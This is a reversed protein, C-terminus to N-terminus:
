KIISKRVIMEAKNYFVYYSTEDCFNTANTQHFEIKNELLLKCLVIFDDIMSLNLPNYIKLRSTKDQGFHGGYFVFKDVDDYNNYLYEKFKKIESLYTSITTSTPVQMWVGCGSGFQDGTFILKSTEDIFIVGGLTHGKNFLVRIKFTIFDFLQEDKFYNAKSAIEKEKILSVDDKHIYFTEFENLHGIHDYHGHTIFVIIEKNTIKRVENLLSPSNYIGADILLAKEKGILLYSSCLKDDNILYTYDNIQKTIYKEM